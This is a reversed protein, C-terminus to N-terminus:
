RSAPQQTSKKRRRPVLQTLQRPLQLNPMKSVYTSGSPDSKSQTSRLGTQSPSHKAVFSGIENPCGHNRQEIAMRKQFGHMEWHHRIRLKEAFRRMHLRDSTRQYYRFCAVNVSAIKRAASNSHRDKKTEGHLAELSRSSAFAAAVYEISLRYVDLRNHDFFHEAM